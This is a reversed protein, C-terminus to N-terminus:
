PEAHLDRRRYARKKRAPRDDGAEGQVGPPGGVPWGSDRPPEARTGDAFVAVHRYTYSAAEVPSATFHSGAPIARGHHTLPSTARLSICTAM